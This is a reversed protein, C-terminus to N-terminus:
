DQDDEVAGARTAPGATMRAPAHEVQAMEKGRRVTRGACLLGLGPKGWAQAGCESCVYKLRNAKGVPEAPPLIVGAVPEVGGFDVAQPEGQDDVLRSPNAPLPRPAQPREAPYRDLWTLTFEKTLLSECALAFRGAEIIYHTMRDGTRKGGPQGTDSPMLGVQEMRAAWELNHYGGRGPKGHHFQWQHVMEHVLTSLTARIPRVSFYAPNMAIEDVMVGSDRQVFRDHSCYGYTRRERQLTFLPQLLLGDFLESNFFDFAQKLEAYTEQTPAFTIM